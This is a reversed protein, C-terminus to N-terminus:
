VVRRLARLRAGFLTVQEFRAVGVLTITSRDAFKLVTNGDQEKAAAVVPAALRARPKPPAVGLDARDEAKSVLQQKPVADRGQGKKYRRYWVLPAISEYSLMHGKESKLSLDVPLGASKNTV